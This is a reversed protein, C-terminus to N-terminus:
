RNKFLIIGYIIIVLFLTVIRTLKIRNNKLNGGGTQLFIDLLM